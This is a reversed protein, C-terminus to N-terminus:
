RLEDGTTSPSNRISSTDRLETERENAFSVGTTSPVFAAEITSGDCGNTPMRCRRPPPFPHALPPSHKRKPPRQGHPRSRHQLQPQQLPLRQRLTSMLLRPNRFNSSLLVYPNRRRPSPIFGHSTPRELRFDSCQHYDTLADHADDDAANPLALPAVGVVVDVVRPRGVVGLCTHTHVIHFHFLFEYWNPPIYVSRSNRRHCRQTSSRTVTYTANPIAPITSVYADPNMNLTTARVIQVGHRAQVVHVGGRTRTAHVGCLRHRHLTRHHPGGVLAHQVHSMPARRSSLRM